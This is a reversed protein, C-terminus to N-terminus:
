ERIWIEQKERAGPTRYYCGVLRKSNKWDRMDICVSDEGDIGEKMDHRERSVISDKVWIAM